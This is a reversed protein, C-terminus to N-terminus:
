HCCSSDGVGDMRQGELRFEDIGIFEAGLVRQQIAPQRQVAIDEEVIVCAILNRADHIAGRDVVIEIGRHFAGFQFRHPLRNGAEFEIERAAVFVRADVVALAGDIQHIAGIHGIMGVPHDHLWEHGLCRVANQRDIDDGGNQRYLRRDLLSLPVLLM